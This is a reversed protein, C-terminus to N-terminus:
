DVEVENWGPSHFNEYVGYNCDLGEEVIGRHISNEELPRYFDEDNRM